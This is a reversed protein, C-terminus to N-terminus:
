AEFCADILSQVIKNADDRSEVEPWGEEDLAGKVVGAKVLPKYLDWEWGSNGFPRKGNFCEGERWLETLLLRFYDGITTEDPHDFSEIKLKLIERKNM